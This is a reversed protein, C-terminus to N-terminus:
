MREPASVGLCALCNKLVQLGAKILELRFKDAGGNEIVPCKEYFDHFKDALSVAYFCIKQVEYNEAVEEVLEPWRILEAALKKETPHMAGSEGSERIKLEEIKKLISCIRAHAYQVYYVPNKSSKERALQLDFDMAKNNAHMLFFFRTVDLGVEKVLDTLLVYIGQRKSMKIERGGEVLRMMQMLLIEVRGPCGLFSMASKLRPVYGHHDAGWFNISKDFDRRHFKDWHYAIDSLFYTKDGNTKVLVRDKDDGEEGAATKLWWAGDQRYALGKEKLYELMRDTEGDAHLQKESFFNDFKIGIMAVAPKIYERLIIEAAWPGIQGADKKEAMAAPLRDALEDIYDGRYQAEEDKLISHGLRRIQEGFDNVYYERFVEHGALDLVNALVDGSFGGRANALTLPGTPNASIFEVQIKLKKEATRRGFNEQEALIKKIEGGLFKETLYFNLFGPRVAEIKEIAGALLPALRGRIEGAIELPNKKLARALVMAVNCSHDGMEPSPPYEIQYKVEPWGAAATLKDINDRLIQKFTPSKEM